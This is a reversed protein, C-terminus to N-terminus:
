RRYARSPAGQFNLQWVPQGQADIETVRRQIQSTVLLHGNPLRLVSHPAPVNWEAAVRGQIDFETVKNARNNAILVHGNPLLDIGAGLALTTGVSIRRQEQGAGDLVFVVGGSALCAIQGNALKKASMMLFGPKHSFVEAGDKNLEILEQRAAIFTNGNAFRQVGVPFMIERQWLIEGKLNSETVRKGQYEAILVRDDGVVQAAMPSKLGDIQWRLQGKADMEQIRGEIMFLVLAHGLMAPAETLRALDVKAEHARWWAAWVERVKDTSPATGLHVTPGEDGALRYLVDEVPGLQERPLQNLLDILVGVSAKEKQYVLALAVPLRVSPEPDALLRRVPEKVGAKALASGAAARKWAAKDDLAAILVPEPKGEPAALATLSRQVEDAVLATPAYPLYTLLLAAAGAPKRLALLRVAAAQAQAGPGADIVELCKQARVALERDSEKLALRLHPAARAGLAVLDHAAKEREHFDDSGLKRVLSPINQPDVAAPTFRRVFEMLGPGDVGVNAARLLKEDQAEDASVVASLVALVM